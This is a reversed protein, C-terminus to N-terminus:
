PRPAGKSREYILAGLVVWTFIMISIHFAQGRPALAANMTQMAALLAMVGLWGRNPSRRKM